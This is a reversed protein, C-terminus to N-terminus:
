LLAGEPPECHTHNFANTESEGCVSPISFWKYDLYSTLHHNREEEMTSPFAIGSTCPYSFANGGPWWAM